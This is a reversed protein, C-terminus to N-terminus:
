ITISRGQGKFNYLKVSTAGVPLVWTRSSQALYGGGYYFECRQTKGNKYTIIGYADDAALKIPQNQNSKPSSFLRLPGQNTAALILSEGTAATIEALAKGDEKVMFGSRTAPVPNFNGQGDGKLYLGILADYWGTAVETAHSNGILLLDPLNDGDYDKALLGYVPAVQATMPLAKLKFRGKGLNEICSSKFYDSRAIYAGKLEEKTFVENLTAEGYKEYTPFRKRM